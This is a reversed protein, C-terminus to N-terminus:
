QRFFQDLAENTLTSYIRQAMLEYGKDNPHFYDKYLLEESGEDFIDKVEVFHTDPYKSLIEKSAANWNDIIDNIESIDAFWKIFPNYLGVLVITSEPSDSRIDKIAKDLNKEYIQKQQKFAQFSLKSFNERVVKMMDNGGITIIIMNADKVAQKVKKSHLRELLQDSRNGKVGFNVINVGDIGKDKELLDKLYPVYGGRKTSDGVGQTLSDGASVITIDKPIFDAPLDQKIMLSTERSQNLSGINSSHVQCSALVFTCLIIFILKCKM